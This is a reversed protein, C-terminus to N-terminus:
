CYFLAVSKAVNAVLKSNCLRNDSIHSKAAILKTIDSNNYRRDGRLLFHVKTCWYDLM